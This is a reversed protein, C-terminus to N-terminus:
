GTHSPGNMNYSTQFNLRDHFTILNNPGTVYSKETSTNFGNDRYMGCKSLYETFQRTSGNFTTPMEHVTPRKGGYIQNTTRYLPNCSKERYGQFWDPNDFRKPLNKQVKYVDSTKISVRNPEEVTHTANEM